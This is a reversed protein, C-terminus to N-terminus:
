LERRLEDPDTIPLNCTFGECVYAAPEGGVETRADLLPPETAGAPGGALVVDPRFAARVVGELTTLDGGVLAV